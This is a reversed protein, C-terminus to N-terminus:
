IRRRRNIRQDVTNAATEGFNKEYSNLVVLIRDTNQCSEYSYSCETSGTAGCQLSSWRWQCTESFQLCPADDEAPNIAPAGKLTLTDVGVGDVKLKGHVEIWAAQADPQWCRYVFFAGEFASARLAKETDRSRTDGSLNQVIFSGSDTVLSRHFTFSPVSLLWPKYDVISETQVSSVIEVSFSGANDELNYDNIGLLLQTAGEPVILTASSGIAVPTIVNGSADAFAGMLGIFGIPGSETAGSVFRIPCNSDSWKDSGKNTYSGGNPGYYAWGDGVGASCRGTASVGLTAGATLPGYSISASGSSMREYVYSANGTLSPDWPRATAPVVLSFAPFNIAPAKIGRDAWRYINANVDQIDLLNVPAIGTRAGGVAKLSAPYAIM